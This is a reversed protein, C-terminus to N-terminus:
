VGLLEWIWRDLEEFRYPKAIVHPAGSGNGVAAQGTGSTLLVKTRPRERLIWDRLGNGDMAGPMHVDSFVLDIPPAAAMLRIAEAADAAEMVTYGAGRLHEATAIRILVEDEVVLLTPRPRTGGESAPAFKRMEKM